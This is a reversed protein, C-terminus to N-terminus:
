KLAGSTDKASGGLGPILSAIGSIKDFPSQGQTIPMNFATQQGVGLLQLLIQLRRQTEIDAQQAEQQGAGYGGLLRQFPNQGAASSLMGLTQAAQDRQNYLNRFAEGRMIANASGFRGGSQNALSLDREFQPGGGSLIEQLGPMAIDLARQEPAQQNLFQSIGGLSQRQLDSQPMGLNGFFGQLRDLPNSQGGIYSNQQAGVTRNQPTLYSQRPQQQGGGPTGGFGLLYNLLEIQNARTGRMDPPTLVETPRSFLGGM